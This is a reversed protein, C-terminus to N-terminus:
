RDTKRKVLIYKVWNRQWSARKWIKHTCKWVKENFNKNKKNKKNKLNASKGNKMKTTWFRDLGATSSTSM